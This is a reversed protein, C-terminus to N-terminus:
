VNLESEHGGYAPDFYRLEGYSTVGLNGMHLDTRGTLYKMIVEEVYLELWNDKLSPITDKTERVDSKFNPDNKIASSIQIAAERVVKKILDAKTPDQIAKKLAKLKSEKIDDIHKAIQSLIRGIPTRWPDAFFDRAPKMLEIIYYYIDRGSRPDDPYSGIRGLLGVDYIMAETKALSPSKHLREIALLAKKYSIEDRFLKLVKGGGIDFAAGDAGGGLYKPDQTEFSRRVSDIKSRNKALFEAIESKSYGGLIQNIGEVLWNYHGLEPPLNSAGTREKQGVQLWLAPLPSSARLMAFTKRDFDSYPLGSDISIYAEERGGVFAYISRYDNFEWYKDNITTLATKNADFWRKWEEITPNTKTLASLKRMLSDSPLESLQALKEFRSAFALLLDPNYKGM